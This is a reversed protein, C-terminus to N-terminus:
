HFPHFLCLNALCKQKRDSNGALYSKAVYLSMILCRDTPVTLCYLNESVVIFLMHVKMGQGAPFQSKPEGTKLQARFLSPPGSKAQFLAAQLYM